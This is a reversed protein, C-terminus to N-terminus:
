AQVIPLIRFVPPSGLAGLDQVFLLFYWVRFWFGTEVVLDLSSCWLPHRKCVKIQRIVTSLAEKHLLIIQIIYGSCTDFSSQRTKCWNFHFTLTLTVYIYQWSSVLRHKELFIRWYSFKFCRTCEWFLSNVGTNRIIYLLCSQSPDWFMWFM